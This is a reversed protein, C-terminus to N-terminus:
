ETERRNLDCTFDWNYTQSGGVGSRNVWKPPTVKIFLLQGDVKIKRLEENYDTIQATSQGTQDAPATGSLILKQGRQFQFSVLNLDTALKDSVAKLCDLAAYKLHLQNQLVDIQEKLRIANTYQQSIATVQGEVRNLQFKRVQLAAFYFILGLIYISIVAGLGGMWLRDVLQQQYRASYEPPLLNAQSEGSAAGRASREGLKEEVLPETVDVKDGAWQSLANQWLPATAPDAVLHCRTPGNLWGEVEGAWATKTLQEMVLGTRGEGEPLHLLQLQQLVRDSWWAVMCLHDGAQVTPYVWVGNGEAATARLQHLCPVELRDAVFGATELKGLFEEVLSRATIIVVVTHLNEAPKAVVEMSWAVQNVPLPSLKELQLEVMSRLEANDTAPLQVVRLFVQDAPLWAMNLKRQFVSKWDKAVIPAPYSDNPSLKRHSILGVQNNRTNFQWLQRFEKGIQLVNCTNPSPSGSKKVSKGV